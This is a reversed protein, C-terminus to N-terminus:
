PIEAAMRKTNRIAVDASRVRITLETISLRRYRINYVYTNSLYLHRTPTINDMTVPRNNTYNKTVNSIEFNHSSNISSISPLVRLFFIDNM